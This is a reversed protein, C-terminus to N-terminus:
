NHNLKPTWMSLCLWLSVIVITASSGGGCEERRSMLTVLRDITSLAIRHVRLLNLSSGGPSKRRRIFTGGFTWRVEASGCKRLEVIEELSPTILQNCSSRAALLNRRIANDFGASRWTCRSSIGSFEQVYWTSFDLRFSRQHPAATHILPLCCAVEQKFYVNPLVWWLPGWTWWRQRTDVIKTSTFTTCRSSAYINPCLHDDEPDGHNRFCMRQVELSKMVNGISRFNKLVQILYNIALRALLWYNQTQDCQRSRSIQVHMKFLEQIIM